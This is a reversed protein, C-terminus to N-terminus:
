LIAPDLRKATAFLANALLGAAVTLNCDAAVIALTPAAIKAARDAVWTICFFCVDSEPPPPPPPAGVYEAKLHFRLTLSLLKAESM